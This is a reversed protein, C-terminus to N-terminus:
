QRTILYKLVLAINKLSASIQNSLQPSNYIPNTQAHTKM